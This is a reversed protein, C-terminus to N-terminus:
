VKRRRRVMVGIAGAGLMLLAYTSPEPIAGVSLTDFSFKFLDTTGSGYIFFGNADALKLADLVTWSSTVTSFSSSFSSTLFTASAANNGGSDTVVITFSGGANGSDVRATLNLGSYSTLDKPVTGILDLYVSGTNDASGGVTIFGTDQTVQSAWTGNEFGGNPNSATWDSFDNIVVIQAHAFTATLIAVAIALTQKLKM